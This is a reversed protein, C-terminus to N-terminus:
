RVNSEVREEEVLKRISRQDSYLARAGMNKIKLAAYASQLGTSCYVVYTKNTGNKRVFDEVDRVDVNLAGPVHWREYEEKRRLDIIVSGVMSEKRRVSEVSNRETFEHVQSFRIRTAGELLHSVDGFTAEERDVAEADVATSPRDSFISCFEGPNYDPFTGIYRALAVIQEKDMGILPRFVPLGIGHEAALLNEATQSSVQGLSEGTVIGAYGNEPSLREAMRYLLRKFTVHSNRFRTHDTLAEVLKSGDVIFITGDYGFSWNDVLRSVVNLFATTDVPHALSCFLIDVPSGRKMMMWAAVPSDIGGSVLAVLRGQSGLPLGGPGEIEQGYFFALNDRVEVKVEVQPRELDVGRAFPLLAAGVQVSVDMSTFPHNGMRRSRVAFYKDKVAESFVLTAASVIEDLSQFRMRLAFSFSKVGFVRRLAKAVARADVYGEVYVRGYGRRVTAPEGEKLLSYTINEMLKKEMSNRARTGKLGIESYRVIVM